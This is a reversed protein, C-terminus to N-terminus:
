RIDVAGGVGVSTALRKNNPVFSKLPTISRAIFTFATEATLDEMSFGGGENVLIVSNIAMVAANGNENVFTLVIDFPPLQDVYNFKRNKVWDYSTQLEQQLGPDTMSFRGGSFQPSTQLQFTGNQYAFDDLTAKFKDNQFQGLTTVANANNSDVLGVAEAWRGRLLPHDTFTNLVLSGAIGRKGRNFGLANPDGFGFLAITERSISYSLSLVGYAPAGGMYLTIDAPSFSMLDKDSIPRNNLAM